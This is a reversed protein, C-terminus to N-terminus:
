VYKLTKNNNIGAKIDGNEERIEMRIITDVLNIVDRIKIELLNYSTPELTNEPNTIRLQKHLTSFAEHSSRKKFSSKLNELIFFYNVCFLIATTFFLM